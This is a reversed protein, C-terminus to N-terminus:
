EGSSSSSSLSSSSLESELTELLNLPEVAEGASLSTWALLWSDLESVDSVVSMGLVVSEEAGDEEVEERDGETAIVVVSTESSSSVTFACRSLVSRDIGFREIVLVPLAFTWHSSRRDFRSM